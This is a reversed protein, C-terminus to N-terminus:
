TSYRSALSYGARLFRKAFLVLALLLLLALLVYYVFGAGLSLLQSRRSLEGVRRASDAVEDFLDSGRRQWNAYESASVSGNAALGRRLSPSPSSLRHLRLRRSPDPYSCEADSGAAEADGDAFFEFRVACAVSTCKALFATAARPFSLEVGSAGGGGMASASDSRPRIELAARRLTPRGRAPVCLGVLSARVRGLSLDASSIPM